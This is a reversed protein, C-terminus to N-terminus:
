EYWNKSLGENIYSSVDCDLSPLLIRDAKLKHKPKCRDNIIIRYLQIPKISIRRVCISNIMCIDGMIHNVKDYRYNGERHPQSPTKHKNKNHIYIHLLYNYYFLWDKFIHKAAVRDCFIFIDPFRVIYDQLDAPDCNLTVTKTGGSIRGDPIDNTPLPFRKLALCCLTNESLCKKVYKDFKTKSDHKSYVWDTRVKIVVDYKIQNELEYQEMLNFCKYLSIHQGLGYRLLTYDEASSLRRGLHFKQTNYIVRGITDLETYDEQIYKKIKIKECCEKVLLKTDVYQQQKEDGPWFGVDEWFHAFYHTECGDITYNEVINKYTHEFFRPQGYFLIAIKVKEKNTAM